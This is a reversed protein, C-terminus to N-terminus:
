KVGKAIDIPVQFEEIHMNIQHRGAIFQSRHRKRGAVAVIERYIRAGADIIDNYDPFKSVDTTYPVIFKLYQSAPEGNPYFEIVAPKYGTLNETLIILNNTTPANLSKFRSTKIFPRFEIDSMSNRAVGNKYGIYDLYEGKAKDINSMGKENLLLNEIYELIPKLCNIFKNTNEKNLHQPVLNLLNNLENTM